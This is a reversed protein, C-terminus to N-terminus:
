AQQYKDSKKAADLKEFLEESTIVDGYNMQINRLAEWHQGYGLPVDHTHPSPVATTCDALVIVKYIRNWADITTSHVCNASTIGAIVLFETGLERLYEELQTGVFVSFRSRRLVPEGERPELEGAFHDTQPNGWSAPSEPTGPKLGPWKLACIGKDLGDPSLGWQSWIVPSGEERFRKVVREVPEVTDRGSPAGGVSPIALAGDPDTCVPQMDMVLLATRKPDIEPAVMASRDIVKDINELTFKLSSM